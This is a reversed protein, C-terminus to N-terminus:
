RGDSVLQAAFPTAVADMISKILHTGDQTNGSPVPDGAVPQWDFSNAPYHSLIWQRISETDTNEQSSMNARKGPPFFYFRSHGIAAAIQDYYALYGNITGDYATYGNDSGDWILWTRSRLQSPVAQVQALIQDITTGGAGVGNIPRGNIAFLSGPLSVGSAGSIYSDGAANLANSSDQSLYPLYGTAAAHSFFAVSRMTHYSGFSTVGIRFQTIAPFMGQSASDQNSAGNLSAKYAGAKFAYAIKYDKDTAYVGFDNLGQTASGVTGVAQLNGATSQLLRVCNVSNNNGDDFSVILAPNTSLGLATRGAVVLTGETLGSVAFSMVDQNRSLNVSSTAIPSSVFPGALQAMDFDVADGSVALTLRFEPTASSTAPLTVLTFSSSNLQGSFDTNTAGGDISLNVAGMGTRRRLWVGPQRASATTSMAQTAYGNNATATLTSGSNAVGTMGTSLTATANSKTWNAATLNRAQLLISQQAGEFMAGCNALGQSFHPARLVNAAAAQWTGTSDRYYGASASTNSRTFTGAINPSALWATFSPYVVGYAYFLSNAFDAFWTAPRGQDDRPVWSPANNATGLAGGHGFQSGLQGFGFAQAQRDLAAYSALAAAGKLFTRRIISM